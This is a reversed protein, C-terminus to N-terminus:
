RGDDNGGERDDDPADNDDLHREIALRLEGAISRENREALKSLRDMKAPPIRTKAVVLGDAPSM